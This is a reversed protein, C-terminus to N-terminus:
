PSLSRDPSESESNKSEPVGAPGIKLFSGEIVELPSLVERCLHPRERGRAMEQAAMRCTPKRLGILALTQFDFEPSEGRLAAVELAEIDLGDGHLWALAASVRWGSTNGTSRFLAMARRALDIDSMGGRWSMAAENLALLAAYPLLSHAEAEDVLARDPIAGRGARYACAREIWCARVAYWPLKRPIASDLVQRAVREARELQGDEMAASACNLLQSMREAPTQAEAAAQAHLETADSFRGQGYRLRGQWAPLQRTLIPDASAAKSVELFAAEEANRGQISAIQLHLGWRWRELAPDDFPDIGCHIQRARDAERRSALLAAHMMAELPRAVKLEARGLLHLAVQLAEETRAELATLAHLRLLRQAQEGSLQGGTHSTLKLLRHAGHLDGERLRAEAALLAADQARKPAGAHLLHFCQAMPDASLSAALKRHLLTRRRPSPPLGVRPRLRGSPLRLVLGRALLSAVGKGPELRSILAEDTNPWAVNLLELVHVEATSLTAPLSEAGPRGAVPLETDLEILDALGVELRDGSLSVLGAALWAQVEARREAPEDGALAHLRETALRLVPFLRSPSTLAASVDAVDDLPSDALGLGVLAKDAGTPRRELPGTMEALATPILRTQANLALEELDQCAETLVVGLSFIDARADALHGAKREPAVYRLTGGERAAVDGLAQGGALGWDLVVVDATPRVLINQPKLDLHLAGLRHIRGVLALLQRALPALDSWPLPARRDPFHRGEVYEMVLFSWDGETGEDLLRTVGPLRLLHLAVAERRAHVARRVLKIAVHSHTLRDQALYVQGSHGSGLPRDLLYRGALLRPIPSDTTPLPPGLYDDSDM